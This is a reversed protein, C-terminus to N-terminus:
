RYVYIYLCYGCSILNSLLTAIGVGLVENGPPLLVFMFLPDLVLNLAGGLAVGIGAERSLSLSRLLNSLVSALITPIGGAVLVTLVYIRSHAYTNAGAGLLTLMPRMFLLMLLSFLAAVGVSLRICYAAVRSAEERRELALLKPLLAGGGSGFLSGIALSVNFLPLILSVGAVMYPNNTQGVYYTDALNYILVILQSLVSPVVMTRVAQPVTM